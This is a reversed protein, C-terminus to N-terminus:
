AAPGKGSAATPALEATANKIEVEARKQREREWREAYKEPTIGAAYLHEIAATQVKAVRKADLEIKREAINQEWWIRRCMLLMARLPSMEEECTKCTVVGRDEDIMLSNHICPNYPTDIGRRKERLTHTVPRIQVVKTPGGPDIPIKM